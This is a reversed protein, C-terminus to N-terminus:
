GMPKKYKRKLATKVVAILDEQTVHFEKLSELATFIKNRLSLEAEELAKALGAQAIEVSTNHFRLSLLEAESAGMPLEILNSWSSQWACAVTSTGIHLRGDQVRFSLPDGRPPIEALAVIFRGPVRAQGPWHGQAGIAVSMGGIEVHLCSDDFSLVAEAKMSPRCFKRILRLGKELDTRTVTLVPPARM